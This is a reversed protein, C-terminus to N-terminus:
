IDAPWEALKSSQKMVRDREILSEYPWIHIVQNLTGVDTHWFGGLPSLKIRAPLASAYREEVIPM